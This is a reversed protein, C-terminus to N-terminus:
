VGENDAGVGGTSLVKKWINKKSPDLPNPIVILITMNHIMMLMPHMQCLQLM